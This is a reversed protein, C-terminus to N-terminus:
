IRDGIFNKLKKMLKLDKGEFYPYEEVESWWDEIIRVESKTLCIKDKNKEAM